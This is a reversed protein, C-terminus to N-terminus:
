KDGQRIVIKDPKLYSPRARHDLEVTAVLESKLLAFNSGGGTAGDNTSGSLDHVSRVARSVKAILFNAANHPTLPASNKHRFTQGAVDAL